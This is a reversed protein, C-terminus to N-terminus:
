SVRPSLEPYVVSRPIRSLLHTSPGHAWYIYIALVYSLVGTPKQQFITDGQGSGSGESNGVSAVRQRGCVSGFSALSVFVAFTVSVSVLIRTPLRRKATKAPFYILDRSRTIYQPEGSSDDPRSPMIAPDECRKWYITTTTIMAAKIFAHDDCM